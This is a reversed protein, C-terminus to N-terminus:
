FNRTGSNPRKTTIRKLLKNISYTYIIFTLLFIEYKKNKNNITKFQTTKVQRVVFFPNFFNKLLPILHVVTRKGASNTLLEVRQKGILARRKKNRKIKTNHADGLQQFSHHLKIDATINILLNLEAM